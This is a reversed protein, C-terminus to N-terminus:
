QSPGESSAARVMTVIRGSQVVKDHQNLIEVERTVIGRGPKSTRRLGTVILRAHITDGIRVADVFKWEEIALFGLATGEFLGLQNSLGMAVALVLPGHAIREGYPTTKAFESDIHLSNFDGSLGSYMVLDTETITRARTTFVDGLNLDDFCLAVM